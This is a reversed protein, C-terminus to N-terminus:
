REAPSKEFLPFLSMGCFGAWARCNELRAAFHILVPEDWPSRAMRCVLSGDLDLCRDIDTESELLPKLKAVAAAVDEPTPRDFRNRRAYQLSLRAQGLNTAERAAHHADFREQKGGQEALVTMDCRLTKLCRLRMTLSASDFAITGEFEGTFGDSPDSPRSLPASSGPALVPRAASVAVLQEDNGPRQSISWAQKQGAANSFEGSIERGQITGRFAAFKNGMEIDIANGKQVWRADTWVGSENRHVLKGDDAFYYDAQVGFPQTGSWTSRAVSQTLATQALLENGAVVLPLLLVLRFLRTRM